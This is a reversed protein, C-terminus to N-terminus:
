LFEGLDIPKEGEIKLILTGCEAEICLNHKLYLQQIDVIFSRAKIPLSNFKDAAIKDEQEKFQKEARKIEARVDNSLPDNPWIRLWAKLLRLESRDEVQKM